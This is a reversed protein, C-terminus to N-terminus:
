NGCVRFKNNSMSPAVRHRVIESIDTQFIGATELQFLSAPFLVQLFQTGAENNEM